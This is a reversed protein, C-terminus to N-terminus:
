LAYPIWRQPNWVLLLAESSVRPGQGKQLFESSALLYWHWEISVKSQSKLVQMIWILGEKVRGLSSSM